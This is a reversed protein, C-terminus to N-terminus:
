NRRTAGPKPVTKLNCGSRARGPRLLTGLSVGRCIRPFRPNWPLQQPRPRGRETSQFGARSKTVM